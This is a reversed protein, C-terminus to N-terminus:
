RSCCAGAQRTQPSLLSSTEKAVLNYKSLLAVLCADASGPFYAITGAVLLHECWGSIWGENSGNVAKLGSELM